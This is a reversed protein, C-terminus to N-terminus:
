LDEAREAVVQNRWSQKEGAACLAVAIADAVDNPEPVESLGLVGQVGRQMQSKTARGNGTLSKKIRTASFSKVEIGFEACRALIVGRSHGMLIATKPHVYHSYLEEVAAVDPRLRGLLRSIDESVQSLRVALEASDVTQFVGGEILRCGAACKEILGYGCVRLGPDIGIIRVAQEL